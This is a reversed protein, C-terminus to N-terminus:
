SPDELWLDFAPCICPTLPLTLCPKGGLLKIKNCYCTLCNGYIITHRNMGHHLPGNPHVSPTRSPSPCSSARLLQDAKPSQLTPQLLLFHMGVLFGQSRLDSILTQSEAHCAWLLLTVQPSLELFIPSPLVLCCSLSTSLEPPKQIRPHWKLTWLISGAQFSLASIKVLGECM